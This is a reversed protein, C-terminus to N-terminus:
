QPMCFEPTANGPLMRKLPSFAPTCEPFGPFRCMRIRVRRADVTVRGFLTDIRRSRRDHIPLYTQCTRCVREIECMKEVQDQLVVRQIEKLILKGEALSLGLNEATAEPSSRDFVGVENVRREGWGFETEIRIRVKM